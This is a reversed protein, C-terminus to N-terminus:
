PLVIRAVRRPRADVVPGRGGPVVTVVVVQGSPGRLRKCLEGISAEDVIVDGAIVGAAACAGAPHVNAFAMVEQQKGGAVIWPSRIEAGIRRETASLLRIQTAMESLFPFGVLYFASGIVLVALAFVLIRQKRIM